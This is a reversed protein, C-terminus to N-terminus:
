KLKKWSEPMHLDAPLKTDKDGKAGDIQEQTLAVAASLDAGRLDAGSLDAMSLVAQGLDAERLNVEFLNAQRLYAGQLNAGGLDLDAGRLHAGHLNAGDLNTLSLNLSQGSSERKVDRRGLVTLVAQIDASIPQEQM